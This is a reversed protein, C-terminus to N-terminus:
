LSKLDVLFENQGFHLFSVNVVVRKLKINSVKNSPDHLAIKHRLSQKVVEVFHLKMQNIEYTMIQSYIFKVLRSPMM